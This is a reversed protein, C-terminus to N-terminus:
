LFNAYASYTASLSVSSPATPYPISSTNKSCTDNNILRAAVIYPSNYWSSVGSQTKFFCNSQETESTNFNIGFCDDQSFGRNVTACDDICDNLSNEKLGLFTPGAYNFYCYIIYRQCQTDYTSGNRFPCGDVPITSTGTPFSSSTNTPPQIITGTPRISTYNSSPTVTFSATSTQPNQTRTDRPVTLSGTYSGASTSNGGISVSSGTGSSVPATGASTLNSSPVITLSATSTEENQTRTDRPVTLSGTYSGATGTSSGTGVPGTGTGYFSTGNGTGYPISSESPTVTTTLVVPSPTFTLPNNNRTDTPLTAPPITVYKTM